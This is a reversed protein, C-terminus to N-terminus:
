DAPIGDSEPKTEMWPSPPTLIVAWFPGNEEYSCRTSWFMRCNVQRSIATLQPNGRQAWCLSPSKKQLLYAAVGRWQYNRHLTPTVSLSVKSASKM